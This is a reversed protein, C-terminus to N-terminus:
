AAKREAIAITRPLKVTFVSGRGLALEVDVTGGLRRVLAAVYALGIGEGPVDQPGSRRFLEFIRRHDKPDIGRGNDSVTYLIETDRIQGKVEIEGHGDPNIFKIANDILNSFTQELALRDSVVPPLPGAKLRVNKERVQHEVAAFLGEVLANTDILESNLPRSGEKSIRLIAAILRDMRAISSKIFGFAEDFEKSFNDPVGQGQAASLREFLENRLIELESTFGMINILPSRLDHSVIYAFRQIEENARTLAATRQAVTRELDLNTKALEDQAAKIAANSRLLMWLSLFSFTLILLAGAVDVFMKFDHLVREKAYISRVLAADKAQVSNIKSEIEGTLKRGFGDKLRAFPRKKQGREALGITEAMEELKAKLPELVASLTKESALQEPAEAVLKEALPLLGGSFREYSDLFEPTGAILYGRQSSEVTRLMQLFEALKTNYRNLQDATEADALVRQSLWFSFLTICLLIAAAAAVLATERPRSKLLFPLNGFLRNTQM